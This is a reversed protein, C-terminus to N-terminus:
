RSAKLEVRVPYHQQQSALKASGPSPDTRVARGVFVERPALNVRVPYAASAQAPRTSVVAAARARPQASATALAPQGSGIRVESPSIRVLRSEPRSVTLVSRSGGASVIQVGMPAAPAPPQSPVAVEAASATQPLDIPNLRYFRQLNAQYKREGPAMAVALRFYREALDPRGLQSYAIALGNSADAALGPVQKANRFAVIAESLQGNDLAARGAALQAAGYGAMADAAPMQGSARVALSKGFISNCAGLLPTALLLLAAAKRTGLM